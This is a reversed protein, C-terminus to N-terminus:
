VKFRYNGFEDVIINEYYKNQAHAYKDGFGEDIKVWGTFDKIFIDSNIDTVFGEDNIKAYVSIKNKEVSNKIIPKNEIINTKNNKNTAKYKKLNEVSELILEKVNKKQQLNTDSLININANSM